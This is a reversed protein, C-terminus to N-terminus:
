ILLRTKFRHAISKHRASADKLPTNPETILLLFLVKSFTYCFM